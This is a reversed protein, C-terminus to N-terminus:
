LEDDIYAGGTGGEAKFGLAQYLALMQRSAQIALSISRNESVRGREDMVTMGRERIDELLEKHLIWFDLYEDLKDRYVQEVLGRSELNRELDEELRRYATSKRWDRKKRGDKM